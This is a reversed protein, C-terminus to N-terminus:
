SYTYVFSVNITYLTHRKEILKSLRISRSFRIYLSFCLTIKRFIYYIYIDDTLVEFIELNFRFGLKPLHKICENFIDNEIELGYNLM